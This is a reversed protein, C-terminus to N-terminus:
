IVGNIESSKMVLFSVLAESVKALPSDERWVLCVPLRPLEPIDRYVIGPCARAASQPCLSFGFGAAVMVEAASRSGVLMPRHEKLYTEKLLALETEDACLLLPERALLELTVWKAEALPSATSIAACVTDELVVRCQFGKQPRLLLACDLAGEQLATLLEGRLGSKVWVDVAPHEERLAALAGPLARHMLSEQCGVRLLQACGYRAQAVANRLQTVRKLLLSAEQELVKGEPTLKLGQKSREFLTVNLEKELARIQQSMASQVISCEMAAETFSLNRAASLFYKLQRLEM